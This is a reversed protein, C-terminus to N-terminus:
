HGYLTNTTLSHKATLHSKYPQIQTHKQKYHYPSWRSRCTSVCEKGVRREESRAPQVLRLLPRLAVVFPRDLCPKAGQASPDDRLAGSDPDVRDAGVAGDRVRDHNLIPPLLDSSCVDSSWDSIRM